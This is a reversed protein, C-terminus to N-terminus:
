FTLKLSGNILRGPNRQADNNVFITNFINEISLSTILKKVIPREFRINLTTYDPFRDTKLYEEDIVNLDNIWTKGVYKFLVSTNVIKNMWTIGTGIKHNPVDTLYKGTLCSDTKEDALRYEMIQAHTYSYNAFISTVENFNYKFEVESGYIEVKSINQKKLIPSLKYGMNVTDGTSVYYMFDQGLSYFVSVSATLSNILAKDGGIEYTTILEPKL